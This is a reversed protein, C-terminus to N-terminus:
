IAEGSRVKRYHVIAHWLGCDDRWSKASVFHHQKLAEVQAALSFPDSTTFVSVHLTGCYPCQGDTCGCEPCPESM